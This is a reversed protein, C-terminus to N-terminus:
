LTQIAKEFSEFSKTEFPIEVDREPLALVFIKKNRDKYLSVVKNNYKFLIYFYELDEWAIEEMSSSAIAKLASGKRFEFKMFGTPVGLYIGVAKKMLSKVVNKM